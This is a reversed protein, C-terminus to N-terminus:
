RVVTGPNLESPLEFKIPEGAEVAMLMMGQSVSEGMEKEALNVLFLFNKGTFVEPQYQEKAGVLITRQGIEQGFDVKMQLLSESWDPATAEDVRGVRLDMKQFEKFSITDKM